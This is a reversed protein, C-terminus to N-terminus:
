KLDTITLYAMTQNLLQYVVEGFTAPGTIKGTRKGELESYLYNLICNCSFAPHRNLNVPIKATFQQVYDNLPRAHKYSVGAFVPAYFRVEHKAPDVDQFSVNVMAGFYDAVLPLRLDLNQQTIYDAFNTKVGNIYADSANFGDQLFTITDGTGQEFINIYNIEAVQFAPLSVHMVVAADELMTQTQGNFVKPTITALDDLHVGAIWGLLPSHGFDNYQPAHLAFELHTKSSGPMIIISFGNNPADTYINALNAADYVKISIATVTDPLETVYIKHRTTLGGEETMFYPISGGIWKGAPLSKLLSEDGALLLKQGRAIKSKVEIVDYLYGSMADRGFIKTLDRQVSILDVNRVFIDHLEQACKQVIQPSSDRKVQLTLYGLLFKIALFEFQHQVKGSVINKWAPHSVPPVDM